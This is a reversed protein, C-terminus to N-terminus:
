SSPAHLIRKWVGWYNKEVHSGELAGKAKLRRHLAALRFYPVTMLLHHELHYNVGHPAITLRAIPGATTTRTNKLVDEGADTGAHEAISRLRFFLSHTTLWAVVWLLYLWPHGTFALISFLILNSIAVPALHGLGTRLRETLPARSPIARVSGSTTFEILGFDMALQGQVRRLGTWGSLDRLIKRAFSARSIPFPRILGLDPDREGGTFSHHQLHYPRYREVDSWVPAACLWQGVFDNVGRHAFLSRHAAEHMLVAFGLQRGGIIVLALLVSVPHPWYAVGAMAGLVLAWDGLVAAAGMLNSARTFESIEERSLISTLNSM